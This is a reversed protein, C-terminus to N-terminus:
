GREGARRLRLAVRVASGLLAELAQVRVEELAAGVLDPGHELGNEGVCSAHVRAVRVVLDSVAERRDPVRRGRDDLQARRELEVLGVHATGARGDGLRARQREGGRAVHEEALDDLCGRRSSSGGSM